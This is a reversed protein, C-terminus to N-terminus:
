GSGQYIISAMVRHRVAAAYIAEAFRTDDLSSPGLDRQRVAYSQMADLLV